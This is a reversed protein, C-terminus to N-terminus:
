GVYLGSRTIDIEISTHLRRGVPTKAAMRTRSLTLLFASYYSLCLVM